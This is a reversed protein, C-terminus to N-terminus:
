GIGFGTVRSLKEPTSCPEFEELASNYKFWWRDSSQKELLPRISNLYNKEIVAYQYTNGDSLDNLNNRVAFLADSLETFIAPTKQQGLVEFSKHFNIVTITYVPILKM